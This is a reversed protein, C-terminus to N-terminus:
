HKLIGPLKRQPAIHPNGASAGAEAHGEGSKLSVSAVGRQGRDRRNRAPDQGGGSRPDPARPHVAGDLQSTLFPPQSRSVVQASKGSPDALQPGHGSPYEPEPVEPQTSMLPQKFGALLFCNQGVPTIQAPGAVGQKGPDIQSSTGAASSGVPRANVQPAQGTPADRQRADQHFLGGACKLSRVSPTHAGCSATCECQRRARAAISKRVGVSTGARRAPKAPFPRAQSIHLSATVM